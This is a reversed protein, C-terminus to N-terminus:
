ELDIFLRTKDSDKLKNFQDTFSTLPVKLYSYHISDDDSSHRLIFYYGDGALTKISGSVAGVDLKAAAM